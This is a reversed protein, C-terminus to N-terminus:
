ASRGGEIARLQRVEGADVFAQRFKARLRRQDPHGYLEEVQRGGDRHGFQAAIVAAEQDLVNRAYWGIYHKTALYFDVEEIGAKVRVKNWHYIRASPTWHNGETNVFVFHDHDRRARVRLLVDRGRPTLAARYAGYKPLTFKGVKASWQLNVDIEDDDWLIQPWSLADLESPRIGEFCAFELLDAFSPPVLLRGTRPSPAHAVAIMNAIAAENPPQENKRGQSKEIGLDAWPNSTVIRGAKAKRADNWMARLASVRGNNRGGELYEAVVSDGVNVMALKGYRKVFHGVREENHKRTSEKPRDFLPDTTWRDYFARVTVASRSRTGLKTRAAERAKKADRRLRFTTGNESGLERMEDPTLIKSASVNKGTAPDYVQARLQGSPLRQISM